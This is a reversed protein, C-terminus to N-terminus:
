QARVLTNLELLTREYAANNKELLTAYPTACADTWVGCNQKFEAILAVSFNKIQAIERSLREIRMERNETSIGRVENATSQALLAETTAVAPEDILPALAEDSQIETLVVAEPTTPIPISAVETFADGVSAVNRTAFSPLIANMGLSPPILIGLLFGLMFIGFIIKTYVFPSTGSGEHAIHIQTRTM